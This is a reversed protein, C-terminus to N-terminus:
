HTKEITLTAEAARQINTEAEESAEPTLNQGLGMVTGTATAAAFIGRSKSKITIGLDPDTFTEKTNTFEPKETAKWTLNVQLTYLLGTIGDLVEISAALTAKSANGAVQFTINRSEGDAVFFVIPGDEQCVDTQVVFITVRGSTTKGDGSVKEIVDGAQLSVFTEVCGDASTSRFLATALDGKLRLNTVTTTATAASNAAFLLPLILFWKSWRMGLTM